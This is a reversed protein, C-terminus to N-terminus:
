EPAPGFRNPGPTGPIFGLVVLSVLAGLFPVLNILVFLGSKDLDHWRQVQIAIMPGLMVWFAIIPIAEPILESQMLGGLAAFILFAGGQVIWFKTRPARSNFSFLGKIFDM